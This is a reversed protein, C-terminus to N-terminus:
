PRVAAALIARVETSVADLPATSGRSRAVAVAGELSTIVLWALRRARDQDVGDDALREVLATEWLGFMDSASQAATSDARAEATAVALVPCGSRFDGDILVQRWNAVFADFVALTGGPAAERILREVKRGVLHVAEDVLQEKGNPFYHYTSGLPAGSLKAVDRVSTPGVGRTSIMKAAGSVMRERPSKAM